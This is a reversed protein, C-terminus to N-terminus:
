ATGKTERGTVRGQPIQPSPGLTFTCLAPHASPRRRNPSGQPGQGGQRTFHLAQIETMGVSLSTLDDAKWVRVQSSGYFSGSVSFDRVRAAGRNGMGDAPLLGRSAGPRGRSRLQAQSCFRPLAHGPCPSAPPGGEVHGRKSPGLGSPGAKWPLIRSGELGRPGWGQAM